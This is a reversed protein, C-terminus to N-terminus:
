MGKFRWTYAQSVALKDARNKLSLTIKGLDDRHAKAIASARVITSRHIQWFVDPDLEDALEKLSKRIHAEDTATAVKTYKDESHFYVIEDIGFMKITDGVNASVWRLQQAKPAIKQALQAVLASLDAAPSTLREKLRAVTEALRAETVPKLLYDVARTDFAEVAYQDYATTFVVHSIGAAARAVELGKAGPMRIDLFAVQPRQAALLDLADLGNDCELITLEPWASRLMGVMERRVLDEDEAVLATPKDM